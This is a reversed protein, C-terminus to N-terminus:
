PDYKTQVRFDSDLLKAMNPKEKKKKKIYKKFTFSCQYLICVKNQNTNTKMFKLWLSACTKCYWKQNEFCILDMLLSKLM